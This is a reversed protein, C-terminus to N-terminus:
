FDHRQEFMDYREGFTEERFKHAKDIYAHIEELKYGAQKLEMFDKVSFRKNILFGVKITHLPVYYEDENLHNWVNSYFNDEKSANSFKEALISTAELIKTRHELLKYQKKISSNYFKFVIDKSFASFHSMNDFPLNNNEDLKIALALNEAGLSVLSCKDKTHKDVFNSESIIEFLTSQIYEFSDSNTKVALLFAIEENPLFYYTGDFGIDEESIRHKNELIERLSLPM